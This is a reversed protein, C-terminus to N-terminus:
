SASAEESSNVSGDEQVENLEITDEEKKKSSKKKRSKPKEEAKEEEEKVPTSLIGMTSNVKEKIENFLKPNDRLYDAVNDAGQMRFEKGYAFWSGAKEIIDYEIAFAVYEKEFQLGKGFIIEVEGKRFPAATKNKVAKIRTKLGYPDNQGQKLYEVKRVEIRISSYFKLARGGPTTEPNGYMVGVKERIQNIFVVTAKNQNLISALKRCGKGMLRAQLGMQQDGMEGEIEAKPTLAAVSDIIIFKVLGTKVADEAIQLADEGSSPQSFIINDTNLGMTKMYDLDYSNEVDIVMVREGPELSQQVCGALYSAISTKGGSEPGYLEIIRGKPVGGGLLYSIIPSTIPWRPITRNFEEITDASSVTGKGYSKEMDKLFSDLKKKAEKEEM